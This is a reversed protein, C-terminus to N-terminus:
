RITKMPYQWITGLDSHKCITLPHPTIEEFGEFHSMTTDGSVAQPLDGSYFVFHASSVSLPDEGRQGCSIIFIANTGADKLEKGAAEGDPIVVNHRQTWDGLDLHNKAAEISRDNCDKLIVGTAGTVMLGTFALAVGAASVKRQTNVNQRYKKEIGKLAEVLSSEFDEELFADYDTTNDFAQWLDRSKKMHFTRGTAYNSVIVEDDLVREIYVNSERFIAAIKEPTLQDLNYILDPKQADVKPM